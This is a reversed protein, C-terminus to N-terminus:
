QGIFLPILELFKDIHVPILEKVMAVALISLMILGLIIKVPFGLMFINMQPVTRAMFGLGMEALFLVGFYPLIVKVSLLFIERIWTYIGEMSLATVLPTGVPLTKLSEVIAQTMMLHGGLYFWFWTGLLYKLQGIIAVKQQSFPDMMEAMAFGMQQSIFRGAMQLAYLPSSGLIGLVLGVMLERGAFILFGGTTLLANMQVTANGLVPTCALALVLAMWFKVPVPLTTGSFFILSTLLGLFRLSTLFLVLMYPILQSQMEM